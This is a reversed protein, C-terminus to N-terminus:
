DRPKRYRWALALWILNTVVLVLGAIFSYTFGEAPYFYINWLGFGAFFAFPGWHVGEVRKAQLIARINLANLFAGGLEWGANILDNSM